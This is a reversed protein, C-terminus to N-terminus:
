VNAIDGASQEPEVIGLYLVTALTRYPLLYIDGLAYTMASLFEWGIFSLSFCFYDLRRGRLRRWGEVIAALAGMEPRSALFYRAPEFQCSLLYGLVMGALMLVGSLRSLLDAPTGGPAGATAAFLFLGPLMGLIRLGWQIVSVILELAMPRLVLRLDTYWRFLSKTDYAQRRLLGILHEVAGYTIPVTILLIVLNELVTTGLQGWTMQVAFIVGATDVRLAAALGAATAQTGTQIGPNSVADLLMYTLPHGFNYQITTLLLAIAVVATSARLCIRLNMSISRRAYLKLQQRYLTGNM